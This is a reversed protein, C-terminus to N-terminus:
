KPNRSSENGKTNFIVESKDTTLYVPQLPHNFTLVSLWIEGTEEIRRRDAESLQFCCVVQGKRDRFAPLPLYEEQGAGFMVNAERFNKAEM